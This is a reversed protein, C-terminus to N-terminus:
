RMTTTLVSRDFEGGDSEVWSRAAVIFADTAHHDSAVTYWLGADTVTHPLRRLAAGVDDWTIGMDEPRYSVGITDIV